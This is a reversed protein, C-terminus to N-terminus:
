YKKRSLLVLNQKGFALSEIGSLPEERNRGAGIIRSTVKIKFSRKGESLEFFMAGYLGKKCSKNEEQILVCIKNFYTIFESAAHEFLTNFELAEPYTEEVKPTRVTYGRTGDPRGRRCEEVFVHGALSGRQKVTDPPLLQPPLTHYADPKTKM